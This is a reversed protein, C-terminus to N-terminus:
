IMTFEKMVMQRVREIGDILRGVDSSWASLVSSSDLPREFMVLGAPRDIRAYVSGSSVLKSLQSETEAANLDLLQELRASTIRSYYTAVVRINHEIVRNKLAEYRKEGKEKNFVPTSRLHKGYIEEIRPWRMLEVNTFCKVLEQHMPLELLRPDAAIRHLLDSQENDYPSLIIFYVVNSLIDQWNETVSSLVQHYYKTIDLYADNEIGIRIMLEYYRLKLDVDDLSKTSIKRSLIAALVFDSRALTLRVQELIFETKERKDMSGFTEVQLSTLIEQAEELKGEDERIKSLTRTLRAREVEVYIKGDTVIRLVDILQLKVEKDLSDLMDIVNQVMKTIAGKLQGHKKSLIQVQEGLLDFKGAEKCLDCIKVLIRATSNMDSGQRTQKELSTLGDIAGQLDTKAQEEFKPIEEDLTAKFDKQDM